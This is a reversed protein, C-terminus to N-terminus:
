SSLDFDAEKSGRDPVTFKLETKAPDSYQAPVLQKPGGIDRGTDSETLMTEDFSSGMGEYKRIYVTNEGPEADLEYRGSSDTTAVGAYSQAVFNVQAGELPSGDLKVTGSVKATKVRPRGSRGCGAAIMGAILLVVLAARLSKM